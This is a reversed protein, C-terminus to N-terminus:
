KWGGEEEMRVRCYEVGEVILEHARSTSLGMERAIEKLTLNRLKKLRLAIRTKEPLEDFILMLRELDDKAAVVRETTPDSSEVELPRAGKNPGLSEIELVRKKRRVYDISLNRVVRYFYGIPIRPRETKMVAEFRIWADQVVDEAIMADGVTAQSYSVLAARHSTYLDLAESDDSKGRFTDSM